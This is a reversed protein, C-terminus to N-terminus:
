ISCRSGHITGFLTSFCIFLLLFLNFLLIFQCFYDMGFVCKTLNFIANSGSLDFKFHAIQGLKSFYPWTSSLDSWIPDIQGLITWTLGFGIQNSGLIHSIPSCGLQSPAGLHCWEKKMKLMSYHFQEISLNLFIFLMPFCIVWIQQPHYPKIPMSPQFWNFRAVMSLVLFDGKWLWKILDTALGMSLACHCSWFNKKPPTMLFKLLFLNQIYQPVSGFFFFFFIIMMYNIYM